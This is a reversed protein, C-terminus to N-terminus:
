CRTNGDHGVLFQREASEFHEIKGAHPRARGAHALEGVPAGVADLDLQRRRGADLLADGAVAVPGIKLVEVAVFARHGQIQLLLRPAFYKVLKGLGCIHHDFVVPGVHFVTEAHIVFRELRHVRADHKPRDGTEALVSRVLFAGADVLDGLPETRTPVAIASRDAPSYQAM